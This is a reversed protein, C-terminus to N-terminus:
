DEDPIKGVKYGRYGLKFEFCELPDLLPTLSAIFASEDFYYQERQKPHEVLWGLKL